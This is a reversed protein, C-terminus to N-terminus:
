ESQKHQNELRAIVADVQRRMEDAHKRGKVENKLDQVFGNRLQRALKKATPSYFKEEGSAELVKLMVTFADLHPPLDASLRWELRQELTAEPNYFTQPKGKNSGKTEAYSLIRKVGGPFYALKDADHLLKELAPSHEGVKEHNAVAALVDEILGRPYEMPQGNKEEAEGIRELAKKLRQAGYQPHHERADEKKKLSAGPFRNVTNGIDHFYAALAVARRSVWPYDPLLREAFGLVTRAHEEGHDADTEFAELMPKRFQQKVREFDEEQQPHIM